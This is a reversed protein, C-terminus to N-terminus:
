AGALAAELAGATPEVINYYETLRYAEMTISNIRQCQWGIFGTLVIIVWSPLWLFFSELPVLIHQLVVITNIASFFPAWKVVVWDVIGDIWKIVEWGFNWEKPFDIAVRLEGEAPVNAYLAVVGLM